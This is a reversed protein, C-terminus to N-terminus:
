IHKYRAKINTVIEEDSEYNTHKTWGRSPCVTNCAHCNQGERIEYTQLVNVCVEFFSKCKSYVIDYVILTEEYWLLDFYSPLIIISIGKTPMTQGDITTISMWGIM